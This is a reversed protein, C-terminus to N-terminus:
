PALASLYTESVMALPLRVGAQVGTVIATLRFLEPPPAADAVSWLREVGLLQRRPQLPAILAGFPSAGTELAARVTQPLREPMFWNDARSLVRVGSMLEVRRFGIAADAPAGLLERVNEPAPRLDAELKRAVIREDWGRARAMVSLAATASSAGAIADILAECRRTLSSRGAPDVAGTQIIASTVGCQRGCGMNRREVPAARGQGSQVHACTASILRFAALWGACEGASAWSDRQKRYCTVWRSIYTLHRTIVSYAGSLNAALRRDDSASAMAAAGAPATAANM